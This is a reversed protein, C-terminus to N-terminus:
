LIEDTCVIKLDGVINLLLETSENNIFICTSIDHFDGTRILRIAFFIDTMTNNNVHKMVGPEYISDIM